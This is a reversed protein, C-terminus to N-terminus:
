PACPTSEAPHYYRGSRKSFILVIASLQILWLVGLSCLDAPAYVAAGIRLMWLLVLTAAAFYPVLAVRAGHRGRGNAWALWLWGVVAVPLVAEVGTIHVLMLPWRAPAAKLMASRVTAQTVLTSVWGALTVTAGAWMLRVAAAVTWPARAPVRLRLILAGRILDAADALSVRRQDDPASEVLVALMEAEHERRFAAPYWALLRSYRRELDASGTM